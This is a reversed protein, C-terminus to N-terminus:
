NENLLDLWTPVNFGLRREVVRWIRSWWRGFITSSVDVRRISRRAGRRSSRLLPYPRPLTTLFTSPPLPARRRCTGNGTCAMTYADPRARARVYRPPAPLPLPLLLPAARHALSIQIIKRRDDIGPMRSRIVYIRPPCILYFPRAVGGDTATRDAIALVCRRCDVPDNRNKKKKERGIWM